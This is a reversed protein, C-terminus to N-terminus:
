YLQIVFNVFREIFFSLQCQISSICSEALGTRGKVLRYVDEDITM